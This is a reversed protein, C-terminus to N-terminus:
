PNSVINDDRGPTTFEGKGVLIGGGGFDGVVAGTRWKRHLYSGVLRSAYDLGEVM